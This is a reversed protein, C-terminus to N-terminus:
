GKDGKSNARNEDKIARRSKSKCSEENSKRRLKRNTNEREEQQGMMSAERVLALNTKKKTVRECISDM